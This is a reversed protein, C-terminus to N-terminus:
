QNNKVYENQKQLQKQTHDNAINWIFHDRNKTVDFKYQEAKEFNNKMDEVSAIRGINRLDVNLTNYSLGQFVDTIFFKYDVLGLSVVKKYDKNSGLSNVVFISSPVLDQEQISNKEQSVISLSFLLCGIFLISRM